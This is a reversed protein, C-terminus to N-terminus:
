RNQENEKIEKLYKECCEEYNGGSTVWDEFEYRDGEGGCEHCVLWDVLEKKYIVQPYDDRGKEILHRKEVVVAVNYNEDSLFVNGSEVNFCLRVKEDEFMITKNNELYATLLDKAEELERQGFDELNETVVM